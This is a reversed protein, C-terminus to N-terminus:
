DIRAHRRTMQDHRRHAGRRQNGAQERLLGIDFPRGDEPDGMEGQLRVIKGRRSFKVPTIESKFLYPVHSRGVPDSELDVVMLVDVHGISQHAVLIAQIMDGELSSVGALQALVDPCMAYLDRATEFGVQVAIVAKRHLVGLPVADLKHFVPFPRRLTLVEALIESLRANGLPDNVAPKGNLVLCSGSTCRMSNTSYRFPDACLLSKPLFRALDRMESLIM